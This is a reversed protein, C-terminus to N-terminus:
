MKNPTNKEFSEIMGAFDQGNVRTVGNQDTEILYEYVIAGDSVQPTGIGKVFRLGLLAFSLMTEDESATLARKGEPKAGPKGGPNKPPPLPQVPHDPAKYSALLEDLGAVTIKTTNAQGTPLSADAVYNSVSEIKVLDSSVYFLTKLSTRVQKLLQWADNAVKEVTDDPEESVQDQKGRMLSTASARAGLELLEHTPLNAAEFTFQLKQPISHNVLASQGEGVLTRIQDSPVGLGDFGFTARYRGLVPANEREAKGDYGMSMGAGALAVKVDGSSVSLGSMKFDAAVHDALSPAQSFLALLGAVMAENQKETQKEPAQPILAMFRNILDFWPLIAYGDVAFTESIEAVKTLVGEGEVSIDKVSVSGSGSWRDTPGRGSQHLQASGISASVGKVGALGLASLEADMGLFAKIKPVWRGRLSSYGVLVSGLPKGKETIKIADPLRFSVRYTPGLADQGDTANSEAMDARFPEVLVAVDGVVIRTDRYTYTLNPVTVRRADGLAVSGKIPAYQVIRGRGSFRGEVMQTVVKRAEEDGVAQAFALGTGLYLAVIGFGLATPVTATLRM